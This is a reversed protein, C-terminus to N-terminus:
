KGQNSLNIEGNIQKGGSYYRAAEEPHKETFKYRVRFTIKSGDIRPTIGELITPWAPAIVTNEPGMLASLKQAIAGEEGTSCSNLIITAGPEFFSIAAATKPSSLDEEHFRVQKKIQGETGPQGLNILDNQGHGGAIAFSIEHNKGYKRKLKIFLREVERKSGAEMVRLQWKNWLSAYFKLFIDKSEFFAGTDQPKSSRDNEPYLIIGYPPKSNDRNEYQSILIEAPYRGFSQIGFEDRLFKSIGPHKWEIEYITRMNQNIQSQDSTNDEWTKLIIKKGRSYVGFRRLLNAMIADRAKKLFKEEKALGSKALLTDLLWPSYEGILYRTATDAIENLKNENAHEVAKRYFYFYGAIGSAMQEMISDTRSELLAIGLHKQRENGYEILNQTISLSSPTEYRKEGLSEKTIVSEEIIALAMEKLRPENSELLILLMEEAKFDSLHSKILEKQDLWNEIEAETKNQKRPSWTGIEQGLRWFANPERRAFKRLPIAPTEMAEPKTELIETKEM